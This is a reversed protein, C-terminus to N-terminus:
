LTQSSFPEIDSTHEMMVLGYKSRHYDSQTHFMMNIFLFKTSPCPSSVKMTLNKYHEGHM